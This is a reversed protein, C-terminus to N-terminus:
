YTTFRQLMEKLGKAETSRQLMKPFRTHPAAHSRHSGSLRGPTALQWWLEHSASTTWTWLRREELGRHPRWHKRQWFTWRRVWPLALTWCTAEFLLCGGSNNVIPFFTLYSINYINIKEWFASEHAIPRCSSLSWLWWTGFGAFTSNLGKRDQSPISVLM